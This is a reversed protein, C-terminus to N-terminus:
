RNHWPTDPNISLEYTQAIVVMLYQNYGLQRHKYPTACSIKCCWIANLTHISKINCKINCLYFIANLLNLNYGCPRRYITKLVHIQNYTFKYEVPDHDPEVCQLWMLNSLFTSNHTVELLCQPRCLSKLCGNWLLQWQLPCVRDSSKWWEIPCSHWMDDILSAYCKLIISNTGM